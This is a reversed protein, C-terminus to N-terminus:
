SALRFNSINLLSFLFLNKEAHLHLHCRLKASSDAVQASVIDPLTSVVSVIYNGKFILILEDEYLFISSDLNIESVVM